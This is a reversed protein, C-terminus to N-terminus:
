KNSNYSDYDFSFTNQKGYDSTGGTFKEGYAALTNLMSHGENDESSSLLTSIKELMPLTKLFERAVFMGGYVSTGVPGLFVMPAIATLNKAITGVVSKELDDSDFFDYKNVAYDEKTLVDGLSLVEKGILSRGGLTEFYYEGESNLKNEGKVHHELVGTLPNIEDVDEEYKALVLPESLLNKLFNIPNSFLASDEPTENIFKGEKWDFIKQKEALEFDSKTREGQLNIGIVGTSQHTPNAVKDIEFKPNTVNSTPKQFVDWFGYEYSDLSSDEQFEGFRKAQKNYYDEFKNKSFQGQDNQFAPNDLIKKSKLYQDMPLLQTNELTLGGINKLEATTFDPNNLNTVIWDNQKM